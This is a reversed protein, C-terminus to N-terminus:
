SANGMAQRCVVVSQKVDLEELFIQNQQDQIKVLHFRVQKVYRTFCYLM